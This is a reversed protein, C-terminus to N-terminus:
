IPPFNAPVKQTTANMPPFNWHFAESVRDAVYHKAWLAPQEQYPKAGKWTGVKSFLFAFLALNDFHPSHDFSLAQFVLEDALLYDKGGIPRNFLFFNMPIFDPRGSKEARKRFLARPVDTMEGNFGIRIIQHLERLGQERGWSFNKTFSGPHWEKPEVAV